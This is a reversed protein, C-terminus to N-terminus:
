PFSPNSVRCSTGSTVSWQWSTSIPQPCFGLPKMKMQVDASGHVNMWSLNVFGAPEKDAACDYLQVQRCRCATSLSCRKQWLSHKIEAPLVTILM